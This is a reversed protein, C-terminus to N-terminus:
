YWGYMRKKQPKQEGWDLVELGKTLINPNKRNRSKEILSLPNDSVAAKAEADTMGLMKGVAIMDHPARLGWKDQAGSTLIFLAGYKRVLQLNQHMKAITQSRLMGYTDLIESLNFEVAIGHEAMLKVMVQDLGSNKQKMLDKGASKEPHCLIDVEWLEMATRNIDDVGGKVLVFDALDLARRANKQLTQPSGPGLEVGYFVEVGKKIPAPTDPIKKLDETKNYDLTFCIGNWGLREATKVKDEIDNSHVHFDHYQLM